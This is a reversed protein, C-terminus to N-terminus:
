QALASYAIRPVGDLRRALVEGLSQGQELYADGFGQRLPYPHAIVELM